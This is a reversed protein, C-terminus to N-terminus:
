EIAATTVHLLRFDDSADAITWSEHPPIVFSDGAALPHDGRFQLRASGALVFAFVLEGTHGPFNIPRGLARITRVQALGRTAEDMATEQAEGAGFPTWPTQAAIHRLFLQGSFDRNPDGQGM